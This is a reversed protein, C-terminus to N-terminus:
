TSVSDRRSSKRGEFVNVQQALSESAMEWITAGASDHSVGRHDRHAYYDGNEIDKMSMNQGQM